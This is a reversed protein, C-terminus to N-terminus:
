AAIANQANSFFFYSTTKQWVMNLMIDGAPVTRLEKTAFCTATETPIDATPHPTEQSVGATCAVLMATLLVFLFYRM